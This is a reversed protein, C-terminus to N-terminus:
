RIVKDTQRFPNNQGHQGEDISGQYGTEAIVNVFTSPQVHNPDYQIMASKKEFEVTVAKVGEVHSLTAQIGAACGKCYMGDIKLVVTTTPVASAHVSNPLSIGVYPFAIAVSSIITALWVFFKNSESTSELKCTGDECVVEQKRYAFYFALALLLITVAILYIRYIEFTSFAVVSGAGLLALAIPGMCCLSAVVASSVSLLSAIKTKNMKPIKKGNYQKVHRITSLNRIRVEM